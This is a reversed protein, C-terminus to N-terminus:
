AIARCSGYPVHPGDAGRGCLVGMPRACVSDCVPQRAHSPEMAGATGRALAEPLRVVFVTQVTGEAPYVAMTLQQIANRSFGSASEWQQVVSTFQEGLARITKAGEAHTMIEAPRVVIFLQGGPPLPSLDLPAGDTPSAWLHQGDDDILLTEPREAALANRSPSGSSSETTDERPRKSTQLASPTQPKGLAGTTGPGPLSDLLYVAGSLVALASGFALIWPVLQRAATPPPRRSKRRRGPETAGAPSAPLPPASGAQPVSEARPVAVPPRVETVVPPEITRKVEPLAPPTPAAGRPATLWEEYAVPAALPGSAEDVAASFAALQDALAQASQFRIPPNKAMMYAVARELEASVGHSALPRMPERAHRLLKNKLDGGPFPPHGALAEYLTCGLAYIDTRVDPTKGAQTFEPALYDARQRLSEATEPLTFNLPRLEIEGDMVLRSPGTVPCLINEPRVDGHPRGSRHIAALGRAASVALRCVQEAPLRGAGNLRERLSPGAVEEFVLFRRKQWEVAEYCRVVYADRLDALRRNVQWRARDWPVVGSPFQLLVTHGTSRHEARYFGTFRGSSVRHLIMYDGLVLPAPRGSLLLRAQYGTIEGRAVLWEALAQVQNGQKKGPLQAYESALSECREPSLLGSAALLKWFDPVSLTLSYPYM